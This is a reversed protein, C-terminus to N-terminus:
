FAFDLREAIVEPRNDVEEFLWFDKSCDIDSTILAIVANTIVLNPLHKGRVEIQTYLIFNTVNQLTLHM